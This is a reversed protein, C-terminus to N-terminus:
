RDRDRGRVLYRIAERKREEEESEIDIERM